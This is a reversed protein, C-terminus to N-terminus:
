DRLEYVIDRLGHRIADAVALVAHVGAAGVHVMVAHDKGVKALAQDLHVQAAEAHDTM